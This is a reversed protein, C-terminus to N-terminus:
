STFSAKPWLSSTKGASSGPGRAFPLLAPRDAYSM